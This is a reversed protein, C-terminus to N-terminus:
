LYCWIVICVWTWPRRTSFVRGTEAVGKRHKSWRVKQNRHRSSDPISQCMNVVRNRWSICQWIQEVPDVLMNAHFQVGWLTHNLSALVLEFMNSWILSWRTIKHLKRNGLKSSKSGKHLDEFDWGQFLWIEWVLRTLGSSDALNESEESIPRLMRWSPTLEVQKVFLTVQTPPNWNFSLNSSLSVVYM